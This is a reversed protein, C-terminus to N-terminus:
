GYFRFYMVCRLAALFPVSVRGCLIQVCFKAFIPEATGSIIECVSVCVFQDCYEAGKDSRLLVM